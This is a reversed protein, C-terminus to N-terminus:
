GCEQLTNIGICISIYVGACVCTLERERERERACVCVSADGSLGCLTHRCVIVIYM